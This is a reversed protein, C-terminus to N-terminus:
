KLSSKIFRSNELYKRLMQRTLKKEDLPKGTIKEIQILFKSDLMNISVKDNLINYEIEKGKVDITAM